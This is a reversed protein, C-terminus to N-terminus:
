SHDRILFVFCILTTFFTIFVSLRMLNIAIESERAEIIALDYRGNIFTSIISVIAMFAGFLGFENPTYLRTLVPSILIVIIQSIATGSILTIVNKLFVSNPFLIVFYNNKM